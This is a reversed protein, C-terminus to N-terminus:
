NAKGRRRTTRRRGLDYRMIPRGESRRACERFGAALFASAFGTWAFVVPMDDSRPEVPYGEVITGGQSKVFEVAARLLPVTVGKRRHDRRIFFCSVSWVPKDDVPQLIRSRELSPYDARPAVACWAVAEGNVYGLIGPPPGTKVVKLFFRRNGAGKSANYESRPRRWTTCWCGGCAGNAGFLLEFDDWRDPTLAHFAIASRKNPM